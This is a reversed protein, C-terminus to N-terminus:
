KIQESYKTKAIKKYTLANFFYTSFLKFYFYRFLLSIKDVNELIRLAVHIIKLSNKSANLKM